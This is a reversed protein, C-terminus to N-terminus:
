FLGTGFGPLGPDVAPQGLSCPALAAQPRSSGVLKVDGEELGSSFRQSSVSDLSGSHAMFSHGIALKEGAGRAELVSSCLSPKSVKLAHDGCLTTGISAVQSFVRSRIGVGVRRARCPSVECDDRVKLERCGETTFNTMLRPSSEWWLPVAYALSGVAVQLLRPVSKGNSCVLIRTRQVHRREVTPADM